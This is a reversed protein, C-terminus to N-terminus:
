AVLDDITLSLAASIKRLTELTGERRGTEIQSVFGQALGAKDALAKSTLRRYERWVRIRNEGDLIRNAVEAPILEEEGAAMKRRFREVTKGDAADEAAEVLRNYDAEALVILREGAPTVITQTNM